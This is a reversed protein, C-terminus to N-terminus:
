TRGLYPLTGRPGSIRFIKAFIFLDRAPSSRLYWFSQEVGFVLFTTITQTRQSFFLRNKAKFSFDLGGVQRIRQTAVQPLTIEFHWFFGWEALIMTNVERM